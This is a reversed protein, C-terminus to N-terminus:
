RAVSFVMGKKFEEQTFVTKIRQKSPSFGQQFQLNERKFLSQCYRLKFHLYVM